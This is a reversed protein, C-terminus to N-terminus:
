KETAVQSALKQASDIWHSLFAKASGDRLVKLAQHYGEALNPRHGTLWILAGANLSVTQALGPAHGALLQDMLSANTKVDGGKLDELTATIGYEKPDIVIQQIHGSKVLYGDTIAGPSIEDLGDRSHVVLGGQVGLAALADAVPALYAAQSVGLVQFDPRLPNALPGLINFLTPIGLGRRVPALSKLAPHFLPAFFFTLGTQELLSVAKDVELSEPFGLAFLLDASGCLSTVSRNGHKAIKVGAAAAVIAAATSINFSHSGDGGTGCNDAFPRFGAGLAETPSVALDRLVRAGASLLAGTLPLFRLGVLLGAAQYDNWAGSLLCSFVSEFDQTSLSEGGMLREMFPKYELRPRIPTTM